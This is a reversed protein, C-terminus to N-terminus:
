DSSMSQMLDEAWQLGEDCAKDLNEPSFRQYIDLESLTRRFEDAQARIERIRSDSQAEIISTIEEATLNHQNIAM